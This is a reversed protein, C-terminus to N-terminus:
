EVPLQSPPGNAPAFQERAGFAIPVIHAGGGDAQAGFAILRVHAEMCQGVLTLLGSGQRERSVRHSTQTVRGRADLTFRLEVEGELNPAQESAQEFCRQLADHERRVLDAPSTGFRIAGSGTLPSTSTGAYSTSSGSSVTSGGGGTNPTTSSSSVGAAIPNASAMSGTSSSAFDREAAVSESRFPRVQAREVITRVCTRVAFPVEAGSLTMIREVAFGGDDGEFAGRVRVASVTGNLCRGVDDQVRAFAREIARSSPRERRSVAAAGESARQSSAGDVCAVGHLALIGITSIARLTPSRVSM